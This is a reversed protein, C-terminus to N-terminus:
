LYVDIIVEDENLGHYWYNTRPLCLGEQSVFSGNLDYINRDFITESLINFDLDLKIISFNTNAFAYVDFDMDPDFARGHRVFRYYYGRFSDFLIRSYIGSEITKGLENINALRRSFFPIEGIYSSSAIVSNILNYSSDFIFLSDTAMWSYVWQNKHNLIRSFNVYYTPLGKNLYSQPYTVKGPFVVERSVLDYEATFKTDETINKPDRTDVLPLVSFYLTKNIFYSPATPVSKHNVIGEFGSESQIPRLHSLVDGKENLLVSNKVHGQPFVFISDRSQVFFGQPISIGYPGEKPINIREQFTSNTIDYIDISKKPRNLVYLYSVGDHEFAQSNNFEISGSEDIRLHKEDVKELTHVNDNNVNFSGRSNRSKNQDCGFWMCGLLLFLIHRM